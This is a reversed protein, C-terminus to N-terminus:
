AAFGQRAWTPATPPVAATAATWEELVRAAVGEWGHREAWARIAARDHGGALGEALAARLAPLDDADDILHGAGAPVMRPIEGVKTAVVPLGCALAEWVVNPCGEHDSALVFLDAARLWTAVLEPPQSGAFVVRGALAPEAAIRRLRAENNAEAGSGGVIAFTLDPAAALLDPLVRLVRHFGKRPSLHGVSVLLRGGEPLGLARRAADQPGPVFRDLDVGNAIVTVPPAQGPLEATIGHAFKALPESVAILRDAHRLAYRLARRRWSGATALLPETGRLTITVPIGLRRGLLIAAFGDPYGFHADILDFPAARHLRRATGLASLYLFLGDLWKGFRPVYRFAPHAVALGAREEEQPVRGMAPWPLAPRPAIVRLEALNACHRLRELVFLGHQPRVPNPFVTTFALVRM